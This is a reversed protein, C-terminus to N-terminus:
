ELRCLFTQAVGCLEQLSGPWKEFQMTNKKRNFDYLRYLVYSESNEESFQLEARTVVFPTELRGSTTKVEIYIKRGYEDYSLIDFGLGDGDAKMPPGDIGLEHLKKKEFNMVLSEGLDGLSKDRQAKSEWDVIKGRLKPSTVNGPRPEREVLILKPISLEENEFRETFLYKTAAFIVDQTLVTYLEDTYEAATIRSRHLRLLEEDQVVAERVHLSLNLFEIANRNPSKKIPRYANDVRKAFERFMEYKYLFYREPYRFCLYVMVAREDQYGNDGPYLKDMLSQFGLRYVAIRDQWDSSEDFLNAFLARVQGPAEVAVNFLMRRPLYNGSSLLNLSGRFSSVLMAPFDQAEIDWHDRFCKVARWKYIEDEHIKWFGRKYRELIDSLKAENM